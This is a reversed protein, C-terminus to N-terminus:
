EMPIVSTMRPLPKEPTGGGPSHEAAVRPVDPRSTGLALTQLNGMADYTFTGNGWLATGSNATTLRHLDDYAFDRNYTPDLADHIATINGAPDHGYTYSAIPGGARFSTGTGGSM